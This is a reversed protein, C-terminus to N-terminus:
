TKVAALNFILGKKSIAGHEKYNSTESARVAEM